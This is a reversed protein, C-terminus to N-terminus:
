GRNKNYVICRCSYSPPVSRLFVPLPKLSVIPFASHDERQGPPKKGTHTCIVTSTSHHLLFGVMIFSTIHRSVFVPLFLADLIFKSATIAPVLIFFRSVPECTDMNVSKKGAETCRLDPSRTHGVPGNFVIFDSVVRKSNGFSVFCWAFSLHYLISCNHKVPFRATM